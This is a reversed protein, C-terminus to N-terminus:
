NLIRRKLLRLSSNSTRRALFDEILRNICVKSENSSWLPIPPIPTSSPPSVTTPSPFTTVTRHPLPLILRSSKLRPYLSSVREKNDRLCFYM